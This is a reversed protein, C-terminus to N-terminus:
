MSYDTSAVLGPRFGSNLIRYYSQLASDGGHVDEMLFSATGLATEVPFELPACCDLSHLIGDPPPYFAFPLYQM